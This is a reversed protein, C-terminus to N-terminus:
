ARAKELDPFLIRAVEFLYDWDYDLPLGQEESIQDFLQCHLDSDREVGLQEMQKNVELLVKLAEYFNDTDKCVSAM